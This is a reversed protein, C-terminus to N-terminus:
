GAIQRVLFILFAVFLAVGCVAVAIVQLPTISPSDASHDSRRRVGLFGWLVTRLSKLLSPRPAGETRPGELGKFLKFM